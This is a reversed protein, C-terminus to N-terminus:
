IIRRLQGQSGYGSRLWVIWRRSSRSKNRLFAHDHLRHHLHQRLLNFQLLYRVGLYLDRRSLFRVQGESADTENVNTKPINKANTTEAHPRQIHNVTAKQPDSCARRVPAACRRWTSTPYSCSTRHSRRASSFSAISIKYPSVVLGVKSTHFFADFLFHNM